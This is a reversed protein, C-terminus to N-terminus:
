EACQAGQHAGGCWHRPVQPAREESDTAPPAQHVEPLTDVKVWCRYSASLATHCGTATKSYVADNPTCGISYQRFSIFMSAKLMTQRYRRILFCSTKAASYNNIRLAAATHLFSILYVQTTSLQLMHVGWHRSQHGGWVEHLLEDADMMYPSTARCEEAQARLTDAATMKMVRVNRLPSRDWIQHGCHHRHGDPSEEEHLKRPIAGGHSARHSRDAHRAPLMRGDPAGGSLSKVEAGPSPFGRIVM